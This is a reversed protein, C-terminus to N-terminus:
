LVYISGDEFGIKGLWQGSSQETESCAEMYKFIVFYCRVFRVDSLVAGIDSLDSANPALSNIMNLDDCEIDVREM